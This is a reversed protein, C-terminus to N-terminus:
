QPLLEWRTLIERVEKASCSRVLEMRIEAAHPVSRIYAALHKRMPNFFFKEEESFVREFTEAHAVALAVFDETTHLEADRFCFPNGVCARGIMVGDVGYMQAQQLAEPRSHVDGNGIILVGSGKAMQVANGIMEWDAEGSYLQKFTRGHLAIALPNEALLEPLWTELSAERYGLRTKVSIPVVETTSRQQISLPLNAHRKEIETALKNSIDACDRSRKGDFFEQAGQKCACIIERALTPSNILGAGAGRHVVSKAPCGMNIDVGDFGLECCIITAQRFYDPTLGYLQAIIPREEEGYRFDKLLRVANHCLGEVSTFETYILDPKGFQKIILRFAHDTVGDMPALAIFPKPLTSWISM